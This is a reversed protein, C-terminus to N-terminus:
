RLNGSNSKHPFVKKLLETSDQIWQPSTNEEKFFFLLEHFKHKRRVFSWKLFSGKRVLVSTSFNVALHIYGPYLCDLRKRRRNQQLCKAIGRTHGQRPIDTGCQQRQIQHQPSASCFAAVLMLGTVVALGSFLEPISLVKCRRVLWLPHEPNPFLFNNLTYPLLHKPNLTITSYSTAAWHSDESRKEKHHLLLDWIELIPFQKQNVPIILLNQM